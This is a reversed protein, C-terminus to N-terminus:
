EYLKFGPPDGLHDPRAQATAARSSGPQETQDAPTVPARTARTLVNLTQSLSGSPLDAGLVAQWGRAVAEVEEGFADGSGVKGALADMNGVGDLAAATALLRLM